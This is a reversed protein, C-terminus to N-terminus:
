SSYKKRWADLDRRMRDRVTVFAPNAYQNLKERPDTRMDFFENPGEGDNRVVLKYRSNRAMWTNRLHGFVLNTWPHKKPLPRNTALPFYSRGCLNGGSPLAIGAAECLTPVFDYASVVEPHASETPLRGYWNWIMPVHLAEDYMNVPDTALGDGWLGHRGLLTGHTATLIMITSDGVGRERLKNRLLPLQDDLATVAAAAKRISGLIDKLQEQGSRANAAAPEYGQTEFRTQAYMDHYKAAPAAQSVSYNLTLFFPKGASQADLFAPADAQVEGCNYGAAAFLNALSGDPGGRQMPPRGTLLTVRSEPAAPSCAISNMFRVGARAFTDINPTRIEQNGYCGLMGASLDAAAILLVNPRQPAPKKKALLPAASTAFFTRRTLSM